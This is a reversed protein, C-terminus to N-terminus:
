VGVGDYIPDDSERMTEMWHVDCACVCLPLYCCTCIGFNEALDDRAQELERAAKQISAPTDSLHARKHYSYQLNDLLEIAEIAQLQGLDAIWGLAEIRALQMRAEDQTLLRM